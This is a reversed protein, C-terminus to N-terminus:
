GLSNLASVKFFQEFLKALKLFAGDDSIWNGPIYSVLVSSEVEFKDNIM